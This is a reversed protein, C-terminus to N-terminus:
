LHAPHEAYSKLDDAKEIVAVLAMSFGMARHATSPLPTDAELKVLGPIKGVMGKALSKWENLQSSTVDPKVKFLVATLIQ